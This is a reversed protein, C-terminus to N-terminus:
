GTSTITDNLIEKTEYSRKRERTKFEKKIMAEEIFPLHSSECLHHFVCTGYKGTCQWSRNFNNSWISQCIKYMWNITDNKWLQIDNKTFSHSERRFWDKPNGTEQLGFYNVTMIDIETAWCYCRFQNSFLYLPNRRSESKHDVVQLQKASSSTQVIMDPEGEIVFLYNDDEYLVKSFGTGTSTEELVKSVEVIKPIWSENRYHTLYTIFRSEIHRADKEELDFRQLIKEPETLIDIKRGQIKTRYFWALLETIASGRTFPRYGAQPEIRRINTFYYRRPCTCYDDLAHSNVILTKRKHKKFVM